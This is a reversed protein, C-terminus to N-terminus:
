SEGIYCNLTTGVLTVMGFVWSKVLDEGRQSKVGVFGRVEMAEDGVAEGEERCVM